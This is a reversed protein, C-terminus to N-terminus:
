TQAKSPGRPIPGPPVSQFRVRRRTLITPEAAEKGLNPVCVRSGRPMPCGARGCEDRLGFDVARGFPEDPREFPVQEPHTVNGVALREPSCQLLKAAEVIPVLQDFGM